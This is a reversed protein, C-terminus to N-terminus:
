DNAADLTRRLIEDNSGHAVLIEGSDLQMVTAPFPLNSIATRYADAFENADSPADWALRWAVAFADDPGSAIVARDGGWGRAAEMAPDPPVGLYELMIRISAEGIPTADVEEWDEGLASALDPVEVRIPDERALWKDMHIIQETSDPPNAYAADVEAFNPSRPNGALEGVWLSGENYPFQLQHVMWSPIGTTDPLEAGTGIEMLEEQTLHELAWALMVVTADGELLATRALGRDDEGVAERDLSDIGFAADQLAHAYEHAYTLKANADLGADSVVVMRKEVDDYFGLVQDGLLQLQLEAVDEGPELLGLARLAINDAEQEEQPYQEEFLRELEEVVEARSIIDPPGIEAPPLGRIESVQEEIERLIAIAEEDDPATPKVSTSPQDTPSRDPSASALPSAEAGPGDAVPRAGVGLAVVAIGILVLLAVAVAAGRQLASM